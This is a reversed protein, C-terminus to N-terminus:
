GFGGDNSNAAIRENFVFGFNPHFVLPICDNFSGPMDYIHDFGAPAYYDRVPVARLNSKNQAPVFESGFGLPHM